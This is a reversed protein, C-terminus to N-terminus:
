GSRVSQGELAVFHDRFVLACSRLAHEPISGWAGPCIPLHSSLVGVLGEIAATDATLPADADAVGPLDDVLATIQQVRARARNTKQSLALRIRGAIGWSAVVTPDIPRTSCREGNGPVTTLTVERPVVTRVPSGITM